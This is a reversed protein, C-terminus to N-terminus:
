MSPVCRNRDVRISVNFTTYPKGGVHRLPVWWTWWTDPQESVSVPVKHLSCPGSRVDVYKVSRVWTPVWLSQREFCRDWEGRAEISFSARKEVERCAYAQPSSLYVSGVPEEALAEALTRGEANLLALALPSMRRLHEPDSTDMVDISLYGHSSGFRYGYGLVGVIIAAFVGAVVLVVRKV